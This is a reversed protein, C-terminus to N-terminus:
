EVGDMILWDVPDVVPKLRCVSVPRLLYAKKGTKRALRECEEMASGVTTHRFQPASNGEVYVMYFM